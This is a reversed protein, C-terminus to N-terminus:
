GVKALVTEFRRHATGCGSLELFSIALLKWSKTM